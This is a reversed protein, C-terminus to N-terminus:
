SQSVSQGLAGVPEVLGFQDVAPSGPPVDVVDLPGGQGVDVPEVAYSVRVHLEKRLQRHCHGLGICV